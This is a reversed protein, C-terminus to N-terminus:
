VTKIPLFKLVRFLDHTHTFMYIIRLYISSGLISTYHLGKNHTTMTLNINPELELINDLSM